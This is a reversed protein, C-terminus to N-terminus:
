SEKQRVNTFVNTSGGNQLDIEVTLKGTVRDRRVQELRRKVKRMVDIDPDDKVQAPQM